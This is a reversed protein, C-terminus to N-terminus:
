VLGSLSRYQGDQEGIEAIGEHVAIIAIRLDGSIQVLVLSIRKLALVCTSWDSFADIWDGLTNKSRSVQEEHVVCISGFSHENAVPRIGVGSLWEFIHHNSIGRLLEVM